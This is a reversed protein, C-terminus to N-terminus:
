KQNAPVPEEAFGDRPDEKLTSEPSRWSTGKGRGEVTRFYSKMFTTKLDPYRGRTNVTQTVM